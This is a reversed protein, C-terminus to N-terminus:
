LGEECAAHLQRFSGLGLLRIAERDGAIQAVAYLNAALVCEAENAYDGSVPSRTWVPGGFFPNYGAYWVTASWRECTNTMQIAYQVSGAQLLVPVEM